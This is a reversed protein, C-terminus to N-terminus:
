RWPGTFDFCARYNTRVSVTYLEHGLLQPIDSVITANPPNGDFMPNWMGPLYGRDSYASSSYIFVPGLNIANSVASPYTTPGGYGCGTTRYGTRYCSVAGGIQTHSRALNGGNSSWNGLETANSSGTASIIATCYADDAKFSIADGFFCGSLANTPSSTSSYDSMFYFAKDDAFLVWPRATSNSTSSKYYYFTTSAGTGTDVDSMTEYMILTAYTANSDDVRLYLRNGNLADSRYAAKNTGSWCKTFGAPSRIATITGTATQNSIGETAFTFTTSGPISAIRWQKNLANSDGGIVSSGAITIVPGTTGLLAFNHGGNVTATAVNDAIVLSDLNVSGYGDQLCDDLIDILKGVQGSLASAGTDTSFFFKVTTDPLAM